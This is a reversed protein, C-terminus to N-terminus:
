GEDSIRDLLMGSVLEADSKLDQEVMAPNRWPAHDYWETIYAQPIM